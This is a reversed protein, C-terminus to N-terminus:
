KNLYFGAVQLTLDQVESSKESAFNCLEIVTLESQPFRAMDSRYGFFGGGHEFETEGQYESKVLGFAYSNPEGNNLPQTTLAQDILHPDKNGLQNHYFNQDWKFLDELTTYLGGDGILHYDQYFHQTSSYTGDANVIYGVALEPISINVADRYQTHTMGLPKFISEAAFQRLSKGSVRKVIVALLFYNSNSYSYHEGPSFDLDKQSAILELSNSENVERVHDYGTTGQSVYKQEWKNLYDPIGSTHHLLNQITILTGYDPMEPLYKRIDDTLSLKDQEVLLLISMATFQKALSGIYFTNQTTIPMNSDLDAMGYAHQYAWQGSQIVGVVCGPTNDQDWAAFVKDVQQNAETSSHCSTIFFLIAVFLFSIKTEM